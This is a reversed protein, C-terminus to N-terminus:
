TDLSLHVEISVRSSNLKPRIHVVALPVRVCSIQVMVLVACNWLMCNFRRTGRINIYFLYILVITVVYSGYSSIVDIYKNNNIVIIYM